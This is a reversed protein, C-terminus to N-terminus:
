YPSKEFTYEAQWGRGQNTNNTVFWILVNNSWTTLEPPINPGSYIAMIKEHTGTGNFFYLFDTKAETEFDTFRMKIVQGEPATIHWKCDTGSSYEELGSGDGLHGAEYLHSTGRCYLTRFDITEARYEMLWHTREVMPAPVFHVSVKNGSLFIKDPMSALPYSVTITEGGKDERSFHLTGRSLGSKNTPKKFWIGKMQGPIEIQWTNKGEKGQPFILFGQPRNWAQLDITLKSIGAVAKGINLSGAGLKAILRTDKLEFHDASNKLAAKVADSSYDPHQAKILIAAAAVMAAAQSTGDHPERHTDSLTGSSVIQLGPASLDVFSGFNSRVMKQGERNLAAVGIVSEFAAPYQDIEEPFNGASGIILVGSDRAQQLIREEKESINASSWACLIVDAGAQIAYEIGKYGDKIHPTEAHDPLAKVPLIKVHREAQAGYAKSLIAAIIGALHTGHYYEALRDLPLVALADDDAIDWGQIDDVKGNGDDDVLNDPIEHPNIRIFGKLDEHTIRIGDDVIAIVLPDATAPVLGRPANVAELFDFDATEAQDAGMMVLLLVFITNIMFPGAGRGSRRTYSNYWHLIFLSSHKM